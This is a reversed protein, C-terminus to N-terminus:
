DRLRAESSHLWAKKPTGGRLFSLMYATDRSNRNAHRTQAIFFIVEIPQKTMRKSTQLILHLFGENSEQYM